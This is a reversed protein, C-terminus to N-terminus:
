SRVEGCLERYSSLDFQWNPISIEPLHQKLEERDFIPQSTKFQCIINKVAEYEIAGYLLSLEVAEILQESSYQRGLLLIKVFHHTAEKSSYRKELRKWIELFKPDFNHQCTAKCNWFASSKYKLQDLYHELSLSDKKDHRRPHKAICTDNDFIEVEFTTKSVSLYSGVYKESVSYQLGDLTLLQCHNVRSRTWKRWKKKPLLPNLLEKTKEYISSLIEGTKYHHKTQIDKFCLDKLYINASEWSSFSPLGPLFNRRCYGVANEVSGKENGSALNCFVSEFGYHEELEISFNTQKRETGVIEKVLVSDNDYMIRPFIGEFFRFSREHFDGWSESSKVPYLQCYRLVQGPISIVFLYCIQKDGQVECTVEGHDIQAISGM